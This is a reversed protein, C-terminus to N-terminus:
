YRNYDFIFQALLRWFRKSAPLPPAPRAPIEAEEAWPRMMIAIGPERRATSAM